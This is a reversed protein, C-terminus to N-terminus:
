RQSDMQTWCQSSEAIEERMYQKGERWNIRQLQMEDVQLRADSLAGKNESLEWILLVIGQKEAM